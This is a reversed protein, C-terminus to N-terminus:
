IDIDSEDSKKGRNDIKFQRKAAKRKQIKDWEGTRIMRERAELMLRREKAERRKRRKKESPKEYAEREKLQGVIREKQALAKFRKFADEFNNNEVVVQIPELKPADWGIKKSNNNGKHFSSKNNKM